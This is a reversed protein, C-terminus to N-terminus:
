DYTDFRKLFLRLAILVTHLRFSSDDEDSLGPHGGEPSLRNILGHVFDAKGGGSNWENLREYLFPNEGLVLIERRQEEKDRNQYETPNRRKAVEDLMSVLTKRLEGNAATWNGQDFNNIALRLHEKTTEFGHKLLLHSVEDEVKHLNLGDIDPYNRRLEWYSGDLDAEERKCLSFGDRALGFELKRWIPDCDLDTVSMTNSHRVLAERIIAAHLSMESITTVTWDPNDIAFRKLMLIKKNITEATVENELEWELMLTELEANTNIKRAVLDCAAIVCTRNFKQIMSSPAM